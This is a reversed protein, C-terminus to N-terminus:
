RSSSMAKRCRSPMPSPAVGTVNIQMIQQRVAEPLEKSKLALGAINDLVYKVAWAEKNALASKLGRFADVIVATGDDLQARFLKRLIRESIARGTRPNIIHTAIRAMSMKAASLAAVTERQDDSPTFKVMPMVFSKGRWQM